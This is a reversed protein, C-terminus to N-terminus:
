FAPQPTVALIYRTRKVSLWRWSSRRRNRSGLVLGLVRSRKSISRRESAPQLGGRM